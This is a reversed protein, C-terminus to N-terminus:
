LYKLIFDEKQVSGNAYFQQTDLQNAASLLQAYTASNVTTNGTYFYNFVEM